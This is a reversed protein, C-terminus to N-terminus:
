ISFCSVIVIECIFIKPISVSWHWCRGLRYLLSTDYGSCVLTCWFLLHIYDTLMKTHNNYKYEIKNNKDIRSQPLHFKDSFTAFTNTPPTLSRSDPDCHGDTATRNLTLLFAEQVTLIKEGLHSIVECLQKWDFLRLGRSHTTHQHGLLSCDRPCTGLYLNDLVDYRVWICFVALVKHCIVNNYYFNMLSKLQVSRHICNTQCFLYQLVVVKHWLPISM